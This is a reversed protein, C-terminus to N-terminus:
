IHFIIYKTRTIINSSAFSSVFIYPFRLPDRSTLLRACLKSCVNEHNCKYIHTAKPKKTHENWNGQFRKPKRKRHRINAAWFYLSYIMLHACKARRLYSGKHIGNLDAHAWNTLVSCISSIGAILRISLNLHHWFIITIIWKAFCYNAFPVCMKKSEFFSQRSSYEARQNAYFLSM